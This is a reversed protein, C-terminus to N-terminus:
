RLTFQVLGGECGGTDNNPLIMNSSSNGFQYIEIEKTCQVNGAIGSITLKGSRDAGCNGAVAGRITGNASNVTVGTIWDHEFRATIEGTVCSATYHALDVTQNNANYGINTGSTSSMGQVILDNCSCGSTNITGEFTLDNCRVDDLYVYVHATLTDVFSTNQVSTAVIRGTLNDSNFSLACSVINSDGSVSWSGNCGAAISFPIGTTAMSGDSDFELSASTDASFLACDCRTTSSAIQTVTVDRPCDFETGQEVLRLTTTRPTITSTNDTKASVTVTCGSHEDDIYYLSGVSVDLWTKASEPISAIISDTYHSMNTCLGECYIEQYTGSAANLVVNYTSISLENCYCMKYPCPEQYVTGDVYCSNVGDLYFRIVGFRGMNTTCGSDEDVTFRVSNSTPTELHIWGDGSVVRPRVAGCANNWTFTNYDGPVTNGSGVTYSTPSIAIGSGNCDCGPLTITQYVDTCSSSSNPKFRFGVRCTVDTTEPNGTATAKVITGGNTQATFVRTIASHCSASIPVVTGCAHTVKMVNITGGSSSPFTTTGTTVSYNGCTCVAKPITGMFTHATCPNGNITVVAYAVLNNTYSTNTVGTIKVTGNSLECGAVNSGGSIDWIGDCNDPLTYAITNTMAGSNNFIPSYSNASFSECQCETISSTRQVVMLYRVCTSSTTGDETISVSANRTLTLSTNDSKAYFTITNNTGDHSYGLWTNETPINVNVRGCAGSYTIVGSSGSAAGITLSNDSITFASCYCTAKPVTGTFVYDSCKNGNLTVVAKATITSNYSTNEVAKIIVKHNAADLSCSEVFADGSIGWTGTCDSLISYYIDSTMQGSSNFDVSTTSASFDSCSCNVACGNPQQVNFTFNGIANTKAAEQYVTLKYEETIASYGGNPTSKTFTFGDSVTNVTFYSTPSVKVVNFYPTFAEWNGSPSTCKRYSLVTVKATTGGCKDVTLWGGNNNDTKASYQYSTCACPTTNGSQTISIRKSCNSQYVSYTLTVTAIRYQTGCAQATMTGKITHSSPDLSVTLWSQNSSVSLEGVCTSATYSAIVANTHANSDFSTAATTYTLDECTSGSCHNEPPYQYLGIQADSCECGCDTTYTAVIDEHFTYDTENHGKPSVSIQGNSFSVNFYTFATTFSLNSICNASVVDVIQVDSSTNFDYYIITPTSIISGGNIRFGFTNTDRCHCEGTNQTINFSAGNFNNGTITYVSSRSNCSINKEYVTTGTETTPSCATNAYTTTATYTIPVGTHAHCDITVDNVAYTTTEEGCGGCPGAAQRIYYTIQGGEETTITGNTNKPSTTTNETVHVIARQLQSTTGTVLKCENDIWTRTYTTVPVNCSVIVDEGCILASLPSIASGCTCSGYEEYYDEVCCCPGAGQVVKPNADEATTGTNANQLVITDETQNCAAGLITKMTTGTVTRTTTDPDIVSCVWAVERSTPSAGSCSVVVDEIYTYASSSPCCPGAVQTVRPKASTITSGTNGAQIVKVQSTSNCAAGPIAASANGTTQSTTSDSNVTVCTYPVMRTEAAAGSCPISVSAFTYTVSSQTCCPGAAQIVKPNAEVTTSGTNGPQIVRETSEPNCSRGTITKPATGTTTSTTTDPNVTVCTYPVNTTYSTGSPCPVNVDAFTYTVSSPCCPGALQVVRPSALALTSGTSGSQLENPKITANCEAGPITQFSTGTTTSTTSDPNVTVKTYKVSQRTQPAGSCPVEVDNFTYTESAECCPGAEQIVGYDLTRPTSKPNCQASVTAHHETGSSVVTEVRRGTSTDCSVSVVVFDHTIEVSGGSCPITGGSNITETRCTEGCPCDGKCSKCEQEWSATNGHWTVEETHYYGSDLSECDIPPVIGGGVNESHTSYRLNMSKTDDDYEDGCSDTWRYIDIDRSTYYGTSVWHGGDCLFHTPSVTVRNYSYYKTNDTYWFTYSGTLANQTLTVSASHETGRFNVTGTIIVTRSPSDHTGNREITVTPKSITAWPESSTYEISALSTDSGTTAKTSIECREDMKKIYKVLNYSHSLQSTGGCESIGSIPNATITLSEFRTYTLTVDERRICQGEKYTGGVTIGDVNSAMRGYPGESFNQVLTGGTLEAYTPCYTDGSAHSIVVPSGNSDQINNGVFTKLEGITLIHNCETQGTCCNAM